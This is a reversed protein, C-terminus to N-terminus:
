EQSRRGRAGKRRLKAAYAVLDARLEEPVTVQVTVLGREKAKARYRATATAQNRHM